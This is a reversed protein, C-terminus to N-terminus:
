PARQTGPNKPRELATPPAELPLRRVRVGSLIVARIKSLAALDSSPDGEVLLLDARTGPVM